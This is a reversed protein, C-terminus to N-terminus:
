ADHIQSRALNRDSESRAAGVGCGARSTRGSAVRDPIREFNNLAAVRIDHDGPSTFRRDSWHPYSSKRSQLRQRRAIVFRGFCATRKIALAVTEDYALSRSNQDKFLQFMGPLSAGINIGLDHTIAHRSIGVM